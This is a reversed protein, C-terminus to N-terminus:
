AVEKSEPTSPEEDEDPADPLPSEDQIWVTNQPNDWWHSNFDCADIHGTEGDCLCTRGLALNATEAFLNYLRMEALTLRSELEAIREDTSM